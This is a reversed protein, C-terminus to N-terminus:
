MWLTISLLTNHESAKLARGTRVDSLNENKNYFWHFVLPKEHESAGFGLGLHAGLHVGNSVEM